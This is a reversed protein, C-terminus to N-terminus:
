RVCKKNDFCGPDNVLKVHFLDANLNCSRHRLRTHMIYLIFCEANYSKPPKITQNKPAQKFINLTHVHNKTSSPFVVVCIGRFFRQM